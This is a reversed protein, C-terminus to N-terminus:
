SRCNEKKLFNFLYNTANKTHEVALFIFNMKNFYVMEVFNPVLKLVTNTKNQGSCNDFDINLEAGCNGDQIMGNMKMTKMKLSCVNNTGKRAVGEHYVHAHIFERPNNYDCNAVYAHDFFGLNYINLM